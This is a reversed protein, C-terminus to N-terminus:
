NEKWKEILDKVVDDLSAYSHALKIEMLAKWNDENIKVSKM